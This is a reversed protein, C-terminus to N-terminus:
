DDHGGGGHHDTIRFRDSDVSQLGDATAHLRFEGEQDFKLDSFTAVGSQARASFHKLSGGGDASILDLRVEVTSETVRNGQDDLVAVEVNPSIKKGKEADSPQVQFSLRTAVPPPTRVEIKATKSIEVSGNVTARVTKTGVESSRLSGTAVGDSGTVGGPQTLSNGGGSADLRVTAGALARGDADRVTVRITSAEASATISGPSAEITSRSASPADEGGGGGGGGGASTATASFGVVGVGSVVANVTHSGSSAGLTWRTSAKGSGDTTTNPSSVSGGGTGIVWSVARNPIGNGANDTLRVVLPDPLESGAKASQNNGSVRVLRDANGPAAHGTFTVPSGDLGASTATVTASGTSSGLTWRAQARGDDATTTSAPDVSGARADWDVPVGAVPNGFQDTVLVVLPDPLRSGVPGTQDDGTAVDIHAAAAPGVSAEFTVDLNPPTGNGTVRAVVSQTGSVGGLVWHASATGDALTTTTGPTVTAGAADSALEFTVTQGQVPSGRSDVVKVILPRALEAGAPGTQNNGDVMTINAPAGDAPLVLDSGGCGALVLLASFTLARYLLSLRPTFM